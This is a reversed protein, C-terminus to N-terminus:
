LIGLVQIVSNITVILTEAENMFGFIAAIEVSAVDEQLRWFM